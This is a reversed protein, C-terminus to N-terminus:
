KKIVKKHASDPKRFIGTPFFSGSFEKRLFNGGPFNDWGTLFFPKSTKITTRM